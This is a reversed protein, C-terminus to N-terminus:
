KSKGKLAAIFNPDTYLQNLLKAVLEPYQNAAKPIAVAGFFSSEWELTSTIVKEYKLSDKNKVQFKVEVIGSGATDIDNKLLVGSIVIDANPSYKKALALELKLSEEIYDAYSDNYPSSFPNGRLRIPNANDPNKDSDFKGVSASVVGSDKLQEINKPSVQYKPVNNACGVTAVVLCSLLAAKIRYTLM